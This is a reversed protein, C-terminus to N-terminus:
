NLDEALWSELVDTSVNYLCSAKSLAKDRSSYNLTNKFCQCAKKKFKTDYDEELEQDEELSEQKLKSDVIEGISRKDTITENIKYSGDQIQNLTEIFKDDDEEEDWIITHNDMYRQTEKDIDM